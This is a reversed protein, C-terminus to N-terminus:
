TGQSTMQARRGAWYRRMRASVELREERSMSKRGRKMLTRPPAQPPVGEILKEMAVIAHNVRDRRM